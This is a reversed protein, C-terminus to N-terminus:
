DCGPYTFAPGMGIGACSLIDNGDRPCRVRKAGGGQGWKKTYGRLQSRNPGLVSTSSSRSLARPAALRRTVEARPEAGVVLNGPRGTGQNGGGRRGSGEGKKQPNTVVGEPPQPGAPRGGGRGVWLPHLEVTGGGWPGYFFIKRGGMHFQLGKFTKVPSQCNAVPTRSTKLDGVNKHPRPVPQVWLPNVGRVGGKEWGAKLKAGVYPFRVGVM